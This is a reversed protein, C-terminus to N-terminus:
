CRILMPSADRVCVGLGIVKQQLNQTPWGILLGVHQDGNSVRCVIAGDGIQFALRQFFNRNPHSVEIKGGSQMKAFAQYSDV